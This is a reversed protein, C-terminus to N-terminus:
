HPKQGRIRCNKEELKTDAGLVTYSVGQEERTPM